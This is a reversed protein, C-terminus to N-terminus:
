PQLHVPVRRTSSASPRRSRRRSSRRPTGRGPGRRRPRPRRVTSAARCRSPTSGGSRPPAGPRSAVGTMPHQDSPLCFEPNSSAFPSSGQAQEIASTDGDGALNETWVFERAPTRARYTWGYSSKTSPPPTATSLAASSRISRVSPPSPLRVTCRRRVSLPSSSAMSTSSTIEAVPKTVGSRSRGSM